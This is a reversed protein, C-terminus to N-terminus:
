CHMLREEQGPPGAVVQADAREGHWPAPYPHVEEQGLSPGWEQERVGDEAGQKRRKQGLGALSTDMSTQPYCSQLLRRKWNKRKRQRGTGLKGPMAWNDGSRGEGLLGTQRWDAVWICEAKGEMGPQISGPDGGVEERHGDRLWCCHGGLGRGEKWQLGTWLGGVLGLVDGDGGAAAAVVAAVAVAAAAVAAVAVDHSSQAGEVQLMDGSGPSCYSGGNGGKHWTARGPTESARGVLALM